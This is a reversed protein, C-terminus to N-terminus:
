KIANVRIGLPAVEMSLCKTFMDLANKSMRYLFTEGQPRLSLNLDMVQQYTDLIDPSSIPCRISRGVNNVLIDLRGFKAITKSVVVKCDCLKSIDAQIELPKLGQDSIKICQSSIKSMNAINRGTIVVQAGHRAFEIAAGAGIGSTSGTILVVKGVFLESSQM